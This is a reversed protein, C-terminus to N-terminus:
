ECSGPTRDMLQWENGEHRMMETNKDKRTRHMTGTEPLVTYRGSRSATGAMREPMGASLVDGTNWYSRTDPVQDANWDSPLVPITTAPSPLTM